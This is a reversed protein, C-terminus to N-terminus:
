RIHGQIWQQSLVENTYEDKYCDRFQKALHITHLSGDQMKLKTTFPRGQAAKSESSLIAAVSPPVDHCAGVRAMGRAMDADVADHEPNEAEHTDQIGRLIETILPLPYFAADKARGSLLPQHKHGGSCRKSLRAAMHSSTTLWKTPKTAPTPHAM